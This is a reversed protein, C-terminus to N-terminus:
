RPVMSKVRAAWLVPVDKIPDETNSHLDYLGQGKKSVKVLKVLVKDNPLGVVCLRGILDPTIPSRIEDYYVLWRQFLAGLSDGRIEVAVTEPNRGEPAPVRDLEGHSLAYFHAEEGAGVYGVLPVTASDEDDEAIPVLKGNSLAGADLRLANALRTMDLVRKKKGILIDNIFGRELGYERALTFPSPNGLQEMREAVLDKLDNMLMTYSFDWASVFQFNGM